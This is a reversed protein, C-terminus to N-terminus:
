HITNNTYVYVDQLHIDRLYSNSLTDFTNAIQQESIQRVRSTITETPLQSDFSVSLLVIFYSNLTQDNKM